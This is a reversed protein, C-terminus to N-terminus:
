GEWILDSFEPRESRLFLIDAQWFIGDRPRHVTEVLDFPRFGKKEMLSCFEWFALGTPGPHFNYCEIFLAATNKLTYSAGELIPLEFGHTDLKILFSPELRHIAVEADITTCPTLTESDQGAPKQLSAVGGFPGGSADFHIEGCQDSAAALTHSFSADSRCLEDLATRHCPQAEIMHFRAAPFYKKAALSWSGNSAGVDIFTSLPVRLRTLTKFADETQRYLPPIKELPAGGLRYILRHKTHRWFRQLPTEM